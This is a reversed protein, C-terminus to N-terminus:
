YVKVVFEMQNKRFRNVILPRLTKGSSTITIKGMIGEFDKTLRIMENVCISDAPDHCRNMADTLLVVGEFGVGTYPTTKHKFLAAYQRQAKEGLSSEDLNSAYLDITLLGEVKKLNRGLKHRLKAFVGDSSMMQPAWKMQRLTKAIAIINDAAVPMYLLEVNQGRLRELIEKYDTTEATISTLEVVQGQISQFTNIFEDALSTSHFSDPNNFVAVREILLEDRIFLAAVKGQVSNDFCFQNTFKKNISIEPHSAILTLVPIEYTDAISNVALASGSTSLLLIASINESHIIKKFAKITLEPQNQDDEVILQIKDGNELYPYMHLATQIGRLAAEGIIKQPGSMPGIVGIKVTNGSPAIAQEESCAPLFLLLLLVLFIQISKKM